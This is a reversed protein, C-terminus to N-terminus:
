NQIYLVAVVIQGHLKMEDRHSVWTSLSAGQKFKVMCVTRSLNVIYNANVDYVVAYVTNSTSDMVPRM